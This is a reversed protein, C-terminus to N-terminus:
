WHQDTGAAGCDEQMGAQQQAYGELVVARLHQVCQRKNYPKNSLPTASPAINHLRQLRGGTCCGQLADAARSSRGERQQKSCSHQM